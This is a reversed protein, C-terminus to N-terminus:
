KLEAIRRRVDLALQAAIGTYTAPTLKALSSVAETPLEGKAALSNVFDTM